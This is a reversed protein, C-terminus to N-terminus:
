PVNSGRTLPRMRMGRLHRIRSPNRSDEKQSRRRSVQPVGMTDLAAFTHRAGLDMGPGGGARGSVKTSRYLLQFRLTRQSPPRSMTLRPAPSPALRTALPNPVLRTLSPSPVLRTSKPSPVSGRLRQARLGPQHARYFEILVELPPSDESAPAGVPEAATVSDPPVRHWVLGSVAAAM